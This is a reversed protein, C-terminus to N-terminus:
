TLPWRFQRDNYHSTLMLSNANSVFSRRTMCYSCIPRLQINFTRVACAWLKCLYTSSRKIGFIVYKRQSSPGVSQLQKTRVSLLWPANHATHYHYCNNHYRALLAFCGAPWRNFLVRRTSDSSNTSVSRLYTFNGAQRQVLPPNVGANAGLVHRSDCQRICHYM